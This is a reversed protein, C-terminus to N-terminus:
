DRGSLIEDKGGTRSMHVPYGIDIRQAFSMAPTTKHDNRFGPGGIGLPRDPNTERIIPIAANFYEMATRGDKIGRIEGPKVILGGPENWLEFVLSDPYDRYYRAFRVWLTVFEQIGEKPKSVWQGNGWLCIVVALDRDLADRIKPRYIAPDDGGVFFRVSQFGAAKVADYQAPDHLM